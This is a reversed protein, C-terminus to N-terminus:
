APAESRGSRGLMEDLDSLIRAKDLKRQWRDFGAALGQEALGEEELSTVAMVPLGRLRGDARIARIVDWGDKKPMVIDLVAADVTERGLIELAAAGDEAVLVEYGASKLYEREVMRFFPTDEALLIRAPRGGEPRERRPTWEPAAMELVRYLDPVLTIRGDLVATGFLGPASISTTDLAVAEQVTNIIRHFVVGVPFPAQRPVIVGLTDERSREPRSVPLHDELYILRLKQGNYQLFPRNQIREIQEAPFQEIRSVMELPLAFREETGNDFVLLTQRDEEAPAAREALNEAASEMQEVGAMSVLGAVDLILAVAGSGLITVGSFCAMRKLFRPLPKVVIEETNVVADVALGFRGGTSGAGHRIVLIRVPRDRDPTLTSADSVGLLRNLEALPLLRDRLRLVQADQVTHIRDAIEDPKVRVLEDIDAEPLIFMEEGARVLLGSVIALTLPLVLQVRAGEGARSEVEVTGGLREINTLVVDMGVGRGSVDTVASATSFGPHFILRTRERDTMAEAAERAVIGQAVAKRVVRDLDVGRGDDRIELHVQGGQRYARLAVTGHRPKGAAEREAPPEIGHDVANRVLHTLPDALGEIITKDLDVEEGQTVLRVEKNLKRAAGRVVRHFRDYILSLPQMRMGMIKEQMETTVRSIHQLVPALGPAQRVLGGATQLLQNRGLVLEGALNVLENLFGVGVRIKDEPPAATRSDGAAFAADPAEKPAPKPASSGPPVAPHGPEPPSEPGAEPSEARSKVPSEVPSQVPSAAADPGAEPPGPSEAPLPPESEADGRSIEAEAPRGPTLPVERVQEASVGLAEPVFDEELITAFLFSFALDNELCDSLGSIGTLDLFADVYQGLSEMNQIFGFPSKGRDRIDRKLFIRIAFLHLGQRLFRDVDAASVSFAGGGDAPHLDVTPPPTEAQFTRLTDLQGRLDARDSAAVDEMLARLTDSGALLADIMEPTVLVEGDRIRALLTEMAHGLNGINELGFFGAAGKISHVARFIRNIVDPDTETGASELAILDPEMAQLHVLADEVFGELLDDHEELM